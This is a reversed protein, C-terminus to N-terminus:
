SEPLRMEDRLCHHMALKRMDELHRETAALSGASGSGESPRLGCQWLQDMLGQAETPALTFLPRHPFCQDSPLPEMALGTAISLDSGTQGGLSGLQFEISSGWAARQAYIKFTMILLGL